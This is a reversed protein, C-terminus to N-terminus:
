SCLVRKLDGVVGYNLARVVQEAGHKQVLENFQGVIFYFNAEEYNEEGFDLELQEPEEYGYEM